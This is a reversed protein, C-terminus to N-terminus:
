DCKKRGGNLVAKVVTGKGPTSEFILRGSHLEAIEQCLALGLGAGGQARSRSKDVRYFAETIRALEEQKMGRGTDAVTILCGKETLRGVVLINGCYDMAKRANDILNIILSKVLDPEMLCIGEDYRGKLRINKGEMAPLATRLAGEVVTQLNTPRLEFDKKKLVLLDLLKLSLSELRQGESFIYEAAERQEEADLAQSRMLDAYGIISTMPTKLEHAFSGMFEEQRKMADAMQHINDEITDTMRNFDGALLEIEDGSHVDARISLSGEAIKRSAESLQRIPKTLKEAILLASVSGATLVFVLIVKYIQLQTERATYVQTVDQSIELSLPTNGTDVLGSIQIYNGEDTRIYRVLCCAEDTMTTIDGSTLNYPLYGGEYYLTGSGTQRLRIGTWMSKNQSALQNLTYTYAKQNMDNSVLLMNQIMRYTNLANTKEKNLSMQFSVFILLCASVVYFFSLFATMYLMVKYKFKM